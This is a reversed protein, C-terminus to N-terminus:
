SPTKGEDVIEYTELGEGGREPHRAGSGNEGVVVRDDERPDLLEELGLEVDDAEGAIALLEESEDFLESGIEDDDVERHRPQVAEIRQLPDARFVVVRDGHHEGHM